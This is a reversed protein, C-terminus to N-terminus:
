HHIIDAFHGTNPYYFYKLACLSVSIQGTKSCQLLTKNCDVHLTMWSLLICEFVVVLVVVVVVAIAISHLGLGLLGACCVVFLVCM